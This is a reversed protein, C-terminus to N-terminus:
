QKFYRHIRFYQKIDNSYHVIINQGRKLIEILRKGKFIQCKM